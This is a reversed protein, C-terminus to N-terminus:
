NTLRWSRVASARHPMISLQAAREAWGSACDAATALSWSISCRFTVTARRSSPREWGLWFPVSVCHFDHYILDAGILHRFQFGLGLAQPHLDLGGRGDGCQFVGGQGGAAQTDGNQALAANVRGQQIGVLSQPHCVERGASDAIVVNVQIVRM